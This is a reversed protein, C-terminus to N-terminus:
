KEGAIKRLLRVIEDNQRIQMYTLSVQAEDAFQSTQPGAKYIARMAGFHKAIQEADVSMHGPDLVTILQIFSEVQSSGAGLAFIAVFGLALFRKKLM